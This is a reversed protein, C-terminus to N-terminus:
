PCENSGTTIATSTGTAGADTAGQCNASTFNAYTLDAGNMNADRLNAGSLNAHNLDVGRLDAGNFNAGQLSAGAFNASTVLLPLSDGALSTAGAFNAGLMNDGRLDAGALAVGPLNCRALNAGPVVTGFWDCGSYTATWATSTPNPFSGPYLGGGYLDITGPLDQYNCVFALTTATGSCETLETFTGPWGDFTGTGTACNFTYQGGDSTFVIYGDVSFTVSMIGTDTYTGTWPTPPSLEETTVWAPIPPPSCTSIPSCTGTCLIAGSSPGSSRIVSGTTAARVSPILALSSIILIMAIATMMSVRGVNLKGLRLQRM